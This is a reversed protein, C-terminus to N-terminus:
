TGVGFTFDKYGKIRLTKIDEEIRDFTSSKLGEVEEKRIGGDDMLKRRGLEGM